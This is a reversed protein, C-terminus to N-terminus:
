GSQTSNTTTSTTTSEINNIWSYNIFSFNSIKKFTLSDIVKNSNCNMDNIIDSALTSPPNNYDSWQIVLPSLQQLASINANPGLGIIILNGIARLQQAYVIAQTIDSLNSFEDNTIILRSLFSSIRRLFYQRCCLTQCDVPQSHTTSM